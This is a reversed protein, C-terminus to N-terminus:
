RQRRENVEGAPEAPIQGDRWIIPGNVWSLGIQTWLKLELQRNSM